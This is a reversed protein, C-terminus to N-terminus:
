PIRHTFTYSSYVTSPISNEPYYAVSTWQFLSFWAVNKYMYKTVILLSKKYNELQLKSPVSTVSKM